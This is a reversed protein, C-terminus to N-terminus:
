ETTRIVTENATRDEVYDGGGSYSRVLPTAREVHERITTNRFLTGFMERYTNSQADAVAAKLELATQNQERKALATERENLKGDRVTRASEDARFDAITKDKSRINEHAEDLQTELREAKARIGEIAKVGDLSFTKEQVLKEIAATLEKTAMQKGDGNM